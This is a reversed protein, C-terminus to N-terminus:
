HAEGTFPRDRDPLRVEIADPGPDAMEDAAPPFEPWDWDLGMAKLRARIARLDWIHVVAAFKSAVVLRTGDPTFGLWTARDGHPDELRAVTRGSAAEKLHIVAPAMELAMLRGDPSFAVHGPYQIVDRPLRWIPRRAAVDWLSFDCDTAIVLGRSDPTFFVYSRAGTVWEHVMRGSHADWLRVRDSHWGCSAAWRGDGSLARVEGQPHPGLERLVTRTEPDLLQNTEGEITAVGRVLGDPRRAFWARPLDSLRRPPGLRLRRGRRDGSTAPWRALGDPGATLLGWRPGDGAAPDGEARGRGGGDFAVYITGRPLAALQRGSRLDWLRAGEDMGVVLTRGDPSIDGLNYVGQGAGQDSVLTRYERASAVELLNIRGGDRIAGLWRGDPSFQPVGVSVQRMLLRGSSPEWLLLQGDWSHSALLDGEPHFTLESVYHTHGELTALRRRAAVDWIQIRPDDGTVALREGDPHWAVVQDAIAGVPLDAVLSGSAVDFVSAVPPVFYGVALKSGDPHFALTHAKRPLRWRGAERGTELDFFGVRDDQGVALRRGDPSFAHARCNRLDDRLAPRGDEVRWVRLRFGTELAVLFRDDPSFWLCKELIPGSAIRRVERNHPITHIRVMGAADEARAYLRYSRSYAITVPDPPDAAWGPVHRLDPLAMAAIAEDRLRADPRIRAAQELAALSELRQGMRRGLRGARAQNLLAQFLQDRADRESRRAAALAAEKQRAEAVAVAQAAGARLMGWTTGIIGGVLAIALLLAALVPGRHRRVFRGVRYRVSPPCATVPERALFRQVDRALGNATEYRRARDKELAKMVIWDLDGKVLRALKVPETQRSAVLSPRADGSSLRTSPRPPVEERIVRQVEEWAAEKLWRRELPTTGTLLEYLIVGLSYIDCRTDVDLANTGVQEPAMYLPTGVVAGFTTYLTRDTLAGAGGLAKALGFDIVRPVPRGDHETVLINTPKLDRHIIGKQHAHQVASCIQVFLELRETISLRRADCYETLPRGRVLEMVFFPRGPGVGGPEDPTTGGDLIRAIHPHDMLALAQREADFRALVARSDMGPKILKLAVLRRVPQLQEAMYVSGMGGEGIPEILKYRGAVIAGAEERRPEAANRVAAVPIHPRGAAPDLGAATDEPLDLLDGAQGDALLLAEVDARLTLDDGCVRDLFAAREADSDIERARAFITEEPLPPETM